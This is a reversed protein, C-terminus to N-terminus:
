LISFVQLENDKQETTLIQQGTMYVQTSLAKDDNSM